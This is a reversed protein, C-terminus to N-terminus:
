QCQQPPQDITPDSAQAAQPAQAAPTVLCHHITGAEHAYFSRAGTSPQQPVALLAYRTPSIALYSYLHGAVARADLPGEIQFEPPAYAPGEAPYLAAWQETAPYAEHAARYTELSTMLSRMNGIAAADNAVLRGRVVNPIAIAAMLPIVLLLSPIVITGLGKWASFGHVEGLTHCQLILIWVGIVLGALRAVLEFSASAPALLLSLWLAFLVFNPTNSWVLAARVQASTAKGGLWSGVWRYLWGLFFYGLVGVLAGALVLGSGLLLSAGSWQRSLEPFAQVAGAVGLAAAMPVVGPEPNTDVIHRITQRPHFWISILPNM